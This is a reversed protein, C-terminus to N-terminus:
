YKYSDGIIYTSVGDEQGYAVTFDKTEKTSGHCTSTTKVEFIRFNSRLVQLADTIYFWGLMYRKIDGAIKKEQEELVTLLLKLRLIGIDADTVSASNM